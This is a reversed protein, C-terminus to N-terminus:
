RKGGTTVAEMHRARPIAGSTRLGDIEDADFGLLQLVEENHEGLEPGRM